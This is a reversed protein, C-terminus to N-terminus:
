FCTAPQRTGSKIYAIPATLTIPPTSYLVLDFRVHRLYKRVAAKVQSELLVTSIGKEIINTKQINGTKVKLIHIHEATDPLMQTPLGHRREAPSVIYVDHGHAAFQRMLDSYIDRQQASRIDILTLFLINM